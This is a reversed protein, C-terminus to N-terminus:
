LWTIGGLYMSNRADSFNLSPTYTPPADGSSNAPPTAIKIGVGLWLAPRCLWLLLVVM